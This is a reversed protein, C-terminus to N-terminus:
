MLVDTKLAQMKLYQQLLNRARSLQSKSTGESIHLMEAIEQHSYGEIAFLNFVTRYGDPLQQVLKLLDEAELGTDEATFVPEEYLDEMAVTLGLSKQKRLFALAENIMIRRIWGEFSGESKFGNIKEFVKVFGGIMVDEAQMEDTLYRRCLGLMRPAFQEYVKRQAMAEQKQCGLILKEESTRASFLTM